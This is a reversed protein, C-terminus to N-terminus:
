QKPSPRKLTSSVPSIEIGTYYDGPEQTADPALREKAAKAVNPDSDNALTKLDAEAESAGIYSFIVAALERRNPDESESDKIATSMTMDSHIGLFQEAKVAEIRLCGLGRYDTQSGSEAKAPPSPEPIFRPPEYGGSVARNGVSFGFSPPPVLTRSPAPMESVKPAQAAAIRKNLDELYREYYSKYEGSVEAYGNGTWAFILPWDCGEERYEGYVPFGIPGSLVLEVKGDHNIDQLSQRVSGEGEGPVEASTEYDDFGTRSKDYINTENCFRGNGLVVVLSVNGSHRLDAFSFDCVKVDGLNPVGALAYVFEEVSAASPPNSALNHAANVSWDATALDPQAAWLSSAFGWCLALCPIIRLIKRM